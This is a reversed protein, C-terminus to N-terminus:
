LDFLPLEEGEPFWADVFDLNILVLLMNQDKIGNFVSQPDSRYTMEMWKAWSMVVIQEYNSTNIGGRLPQTHIMLSDFLHLFPEQKLMDNGSHEGLQSCTAEMSLLDVLDSYCKGGLNRSNSTKISKDGNFVWMMGTPFFRDIFSYSDLNKPMLHYGKLEKKDIEKLISAVTEREPQKYGMNHWQWKKYGWLALGVFLLSFVVRKLLRNKM